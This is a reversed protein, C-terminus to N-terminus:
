FSLVFGEPANPIQQLYFGEGLGDLVQADLEQFVIERKAKSWRYGPKLDTRIYAISRNDRSQYVHIMKCSEIEEKLELNDLCLYIHFDVENWAKPLWDAIEKHHPLSETYEKSINGKEDLQLEELIVYYAIGAM